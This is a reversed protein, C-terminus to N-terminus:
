GCKPHDNLEARGSPAIPLGRGFPVAKHIVTDGAGPLYAECYIIIPELTQLMRTQLQTNLHPIVAIYENKFDNTRDINRANQNFVTYVHKLMMTNLTCNHYCGNLHSYTFIQFQSIMVTFIMVIFKM